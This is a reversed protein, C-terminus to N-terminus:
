LKKKIAKSHEKITDDANDGLARIAQDIYINAEEYREQMYLIWAYTDLYTGNNPEAKITRYSMQEAKKLDKGEVSLYYAYNNLCSIEDPNYVLCSDYCEYAGENDGLSHKIDGTLMYITACLGSPTEKNMYLIGTLFTKQANELMTKEQPTDKVNNSQIYQALGLYYYYAVEGPTFDIGKQCETIVKDDISDEWLIGIYKLRASVDEPSIELVKELARKVETKPMDIYEMYAVQMLAMDNTKQPYQLVHDFIGLIRISDGGAQENNKIVQRMLSIRTQSETKPNELMKYLLTDALATNGEKNYYDMLSMQAQAHDPEEALVSQFMDFAEAKRDHSLAWNGMMVQYNLDSPHAKCLEELAKYAGDDDGMQSFVQVKTLTLQESNGENIEIRNLTQLIKENDKTYQYIQLLVELLETRDPYKMSTREYLDAAADIEEQQLYFQGLHELFEGNEPELEVAKEYHLRAISDQSFAAFYRAIAFHAEPAESDIDICHRFLEFAEAYHSMDQQRVAEIYFYQYKRAADKGIRQEQTQVVVKSKKKKADAPMCLMALAM